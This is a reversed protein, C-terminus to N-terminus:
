SWIKPHIKEWSLDKVNFFKAAAKVIITIKENKTKAQESCSIISGLFQILKYLTIIPHIIDSARLECTYSEQRNLNTLKLEKNGWSVGKTHLRVYVRLSFSMYGIMVKDHLVKDKFQLLVSTSDVKEGHRFALLWRIGTIDGGRIVKKLELNEGMLIGLIVGTAGRKERAVTREMCWIGFLKWITNFALLYLHPKLNNQFSQCYSGM